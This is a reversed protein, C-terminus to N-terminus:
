TLDLVTRQALVVLAEAAEEYADADMELRHREQEDEETHARARLERADEDLPGAYRCLALLDKRKMRLARTM